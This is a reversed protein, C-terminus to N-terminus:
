EKKMYTCPYLMQGTRVGEFMFEYACGQHNCPLEINVGCLRKGDNLDFRYRANNMQCRIVVEELAESM